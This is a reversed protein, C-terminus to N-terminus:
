GTYPLLEVVGYHGQEAAISLPSRGNEGKSDVMAGNKLQYDVIKALGFFSLIHMGSYNLPRDWFYQSVLIDSACAVKSRDQLFDLALCKVADEQGYVHDGWYTAAYHLFPYDRL